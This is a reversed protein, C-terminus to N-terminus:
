VGGDLVDPNVVNIPRGDAYAVIQDFVDSFQLDYEDETVYGIHPSCVVRPHLVLPDVPERVPEDEFVDVAAMFPRGAELADLLAGPEILGARSTNVFISDTRMSALDAGTILNRTSPYLRVHVSVVDPEAFFARRSAAVVEGAAEARQRGEESSWWVVRMGFARAYDAVAMGIRGFGYLGITRGRLTKGVGMQWRGAQLSSMQQPLQRAAALVLAWTMEAAAYSPTGAHMNSSLVVGNRTCADVDVHPYVSRQSILKLNPLRDLLEGTVQTRERILVVVETDRLRDVLEDTADVHDNWVTVDFGDLARFCPLQRLTDFYDDLITVKMLLGRDKGTGSRLQAELRGDQWSGPSGTPRVM